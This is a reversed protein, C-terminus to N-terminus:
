SKRKSAATLWSCWEDLGAGTTCSVEFFSIKPNINKVAKKFADMDFKLYAKLDVKNIIVADADVFIIPYKLPKDDGEPVSSIIVRKHEGLIYASPCVLNGINEILLLDIDKLPLNQMAHSIMNADLHCGSGTNIQVVPLHEKKVKEADVQSALDGEIVGIKMKDKLRRATELIASTKGAGPSSMINIVTVHHQDFLSKNKQAIVANADLINKVVEIKM